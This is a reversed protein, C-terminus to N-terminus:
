TDVSTWLPSLTISPGRPQPNPYFHSPMKAYYSPVLTCPVLNAYFPLSSKTALERAHRNYIMMGLTHHVSFVTFTV